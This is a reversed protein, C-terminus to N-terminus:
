ARGERRARGIAILGCSFGLLPMSALGLWSGVAVATDAVRGAGSVQGDFTTILGVVLSATVLSLIPGALGALKRGQNAGMAATGLVAVLTLLLLVYWLGKNLNLVTISELHREARRGSGVVVLQRMWPLFISTIGGLLGFLGMWGGILVLKRQM